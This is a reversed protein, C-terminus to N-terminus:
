KEALSKTEEQKQGEIVGEDSFLEGDKGSAPEAMGVETKVEYEEPKVREEQLEKKIVESSVPAPKDEGNESEKGGDVVKKSEDTDTQKINQVMELAEDATSLPFGRWETYM